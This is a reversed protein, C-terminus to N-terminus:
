QSISNNQHTFVIRNSVVESNILRAFMEKEAGELITGGIAVRDDCELCGSALAVARAADYEPKEFVPGKKKRRLQNRVSAPNTKAPLKKDQADTRPNPEFPDDDDNLVTEDSFFNDFDLHALPDGFDIEAGGLGGFTNPNPPNGLNIEAGGLGGFTNPIAPNGFDIEAGGVGGFTGFDMEAVGLGGVTNPIAPDGFDIEAGGVGGFTNPNAPGDFDIEAGGVGGFTGFDIEAGGM